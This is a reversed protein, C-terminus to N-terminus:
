KLSPLKGRDEGVVLGYDDGGSMVVGCCFGIWFFGWGLGFGVRAGMERM